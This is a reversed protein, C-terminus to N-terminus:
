TSEWGSLRVVVNNSTANYAVIYEGGTLLDASLQIPKDVPVIGKFIWESDSPTATSAFAIKVTENSSGINTLRLSAVVFEKAATVQYVTTNTTTAPKSNAKKVQYVAM